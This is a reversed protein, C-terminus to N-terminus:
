KKFNFGFKNAPKTPTPTGKKAPAAQPAPQAVQGAWPGGAARPATRAEPSRPKTQENFYDLEQQMRAKRKPNRMMYNTAGDIANLDKGKYPILLSASEQEAMKQATARLVDDPKTADAARLRKYIAETDNGATLKARQAPAALFHWEIKLKPDRERESRVWDLLPQRDGRQYAELLAPNTPTIVNGTSSTLLAVPKIYRLRQSAANNTILKSPQGNKLVVFQRHLGEAEFDQATGDAKVRKLPESAALATLGHAGGVGTGGIVEPTYDSGGTLSFKPGAAARGARPQPASRYTEQQRTRSYAYPVLQEALDQEITPLKGQARLEVYNREEDSLPENNQMKQVAAQELQQRQERVYDLLRGAFPDNKVARVTSATIRLVPDGTAPDLMPQHTVPDREISQNSEYYTKLGTGGPRAAKEFEDSDKKAVDAAFQRWVEQRNFVAPSNLADTATQPDYTLPDRSKGPEEYLTQSLAGIAKERDYRKDSLVQQGLTQVHNDITVSAEAERDYAQRLESQKASKQQRTLSRDAAVAQMDTYTQDAKAKLRPLFHVGGKPSLNLKANFEKDAAAQARAAAEQEREAIRAKLKDQDQMWRLADNGGTFVVAAGTNARGLPVLGSYDAM